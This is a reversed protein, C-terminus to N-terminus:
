LIMTYFFSVCYLCFAGFLTPSCARFGCGHPDGFGLVLYGNGGEGVVLGGRGLFFWVRFNPNELMNDENKFLVWNKWVGNFGGQKEGVNFVVWM